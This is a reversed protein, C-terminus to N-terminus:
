NNGFSSKYKIGENNGFEKWIGFSQIKGNVHIEYRSSHDQNRRTNMYDLDVHIM